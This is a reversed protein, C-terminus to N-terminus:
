ASGGDAPRITTRTGRRSMIMAAVVGALGVSMLMLSGIIPFDDVREGNLTFGLEWKRKVLFAGVPLNQPLPGDGIPATYEDRAGDSREFTYVVIPGHNEPTKPIDQRAVVKGEIETQLRYWFVYGGFLLVGVGFLAIAAYVPFKPSRGQRRSLLGTPRIVGAFYGLVVLALTILVM